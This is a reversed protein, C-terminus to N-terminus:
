QHHKRLDNLRLSYDEIWARFDDVSWYFFFIWNFSEFRQFCNTKSVYFWCSGIEKFVSCPSKKLLLLMEKPRYNHEFFTESMGSTIIYSKNATRQPFICKLSSQSPRLRLGAGVRLGGRSNNVWGLKQITCNQQEEMRTKRWKESFHSPQLDKKRTKM